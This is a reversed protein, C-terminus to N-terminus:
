KVTSGVANMGVRSLFPDEAQKGIFNLVKPQPEAMATDLMTVSIALPLFRSWAMSM